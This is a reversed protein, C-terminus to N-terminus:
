GGSKSAARQVPAPPGIRRVYEQMTVFRYGRAKLEPILTQLAVVTTSLEHFALIHAAVGQKERREIQQLVFANLSPKPCNVPRAGACLYDASNVDRMSLPVDSSISLVRYGRGELQRNLADWTIWDPPRVFVARHGTVGTILESARDVDAVVSGPGHQKEFLKFQVHSFSHDEIEYGRRFLDRAADLCTKDTRFERPDGYAGPTLRWGMVFFTAKVHERDLLDLLGPTPKQGPQTYGYLIYPRPGDDFTLAILKQGAAGATAALGLFSLLLVICRKM